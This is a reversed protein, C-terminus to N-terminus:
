LAVSAKPLEVVLVMRTFMTSSTGLATAASRETGATSISELRSSTISTDPLM